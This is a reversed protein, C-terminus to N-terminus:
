NKNKPQAFRFWRVSFPPILNLLQDSVLPRRAPLVRGGMAVSMPLNSQPHGSPICVFHHLRPMETTGDHSRLCEATSITQQLLVRCEGMCTLSFVTIADYRFVFKPRPQRYGVIPTNHHWVVVTRLHKYQCGLLLGVSLKIPHLLLSMSNNRRTRPVHRTDFGMHLQDSRLDNGHLFCCM